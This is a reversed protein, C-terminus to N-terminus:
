INPTQPNKTRPKPVPSPQQEEAATPLQAPGSETHVEPQVTQYCARPPPQPTPPLSNETPHMTEYEPSIAGDERKNLSLMRLAGKDGLRMQSKKRRYCCCLVIVIILLLLIVGAGGILATKVTKPTYCLLPPPSPSKCTPRVISSSEKSVKNAVSCSFSREGKLQTLSISLTQKTESTLTKGDLAWSFVLDQPKATQCNLNVAGTKLDCVYNLEPKSVNDMMCLRGTWTKVFTGNPYLINVRYTGASASTLVKLLLSGTASIDTSKGISVRGQERYFIIKSNHTWRVVYSNVLGDFVFPLTVSQGVAAYIECNDKEGASVNIFGLLIIVHLITTFCAM